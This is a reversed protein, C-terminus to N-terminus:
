VGVIGLAHYQTLNFGDPYYWPSKDYTACGSVAIVVVLLTWKM